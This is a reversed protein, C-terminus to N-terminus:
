EVTVSKALNRPQDVDCGRRVAIHYALLQLPVVMLVPTLLPHTAPITVVHDEAPDLMQVIPDRDGDTIAIVTSGRAKAEHLNGIMKEFVHDRPALAVVPMQEDILAIPGHKMEGAPYGEAHIYSIEKLKLAGELAIPYNIGRGLYLFDSREHFLSALDAIAPDLKLTEEVLRPLQALAALHPRAADATLAGRVRGLHLALLHLAVLQSTFAKTSAVGIEPGAHTYVTGDAERTVMSGVVNCIAIAHAGKQKAERLAALTDATEGSQTIVVALSRADVIPDRYRYESGYDVDVPVRALQEFLFKGVLGAHWSTGCAVTVVREIRRLVDDSVGLEGPYLDGTELSFRGLLTEQIADPQEFIEKQMFHAYGAKEAMGANWALRQPERELRVGDFDTFTAGDRRVVVMERNGLFVVDRTHSLVAQIDSAVLYEGDGMGVVIPPGSRAAVITGPDDVAVVVLAFLGRLPTLARRVAAALGDDRWEREILHAVTETDTESAFAHGDRQLERKLDLYNEIIGNHVVVLRGRCDVHPHANEESARGHTAWRTHGIGYDGDVPQLGLAAELRALKGAARRRELAGDRVLAVGASDYGRYELRRLGDLIVPLAPKAGIYGIIGCM